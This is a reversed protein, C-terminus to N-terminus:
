NKILAEIETLTKDKAPLHRENVTYYLAKLKETDQNASHIAALLTYAKSLETGYGISSELVASASATEGEDYLAQAWRLMAHCYREFNVEYSAILELNAYGFEAKLENNTMPKDFHMMKANARKVAEDQRVSAVQRLSPDINSDNYEKMPLGGMDPTFILEEAIPRKAPFESYEAFYDSEKFTSHQKKTGSIVKVVFFIMAVIGIFGIIFSVVVLPGANSLSEFM